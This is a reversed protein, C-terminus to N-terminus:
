KSQKSLDMLPFASFLHSQFPSVVEEFVMTKDLASISSAGCLALAVELEEKLIELM